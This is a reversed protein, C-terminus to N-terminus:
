LRICALSDVGQWKQVVQVPLLQPQSSYHRYLKIRVNASLSYSRGYGFTRSVFLLFPTEAQPFFSAIEEAAPCSPSRYGELSM